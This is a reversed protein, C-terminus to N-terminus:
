VKSLEVSRNHAAETTEMILDFLGSNNAMLKELGAATTGNPSTVQERLESPSFESSQLLKGSGSVLTKALKQAVEASLGLKEGAATLAETMAYIYAPGSGSIATVAHMLEEDQLIVTDGVAQMLQDALEMHEQNTHANGVLATIGAGVAAPTNPMTRIIPTNAGLIEEFTEILTGAAISIFLTPGGGYLDLEPLADSMVQPKTAIIAVSPPEEPQHNVKMGKSSLETLWESPRPDLVTIAKPDVGSALWGALLASGM